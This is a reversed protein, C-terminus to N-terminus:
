MIHEVEERISHVLSNVPRPTRSYTDREHKIWELDSVFVWLLLFKVVSRKHMLHTSKQFESHLKQKKQSFLSNKLPNRKSQSDILEKFIQYNTSESIWTILRQQEEQTLIENQVSLLNNKRGNIALYYQKLAKRLTHLEFTRWFFNKLFSLLFEEIGISEDIYLHEENSKLSMNFHFHHKNERNFDIEFGSNDVKRYWFVIYNIERTDLDNVFQDLDSYSQLTGQAWEEFGKKNKSIEIELNLNGDSDSVINKIRWLVDQGVFISSWVKIEFLYDNWRRLIPDFIYYSNWLEVLTFSHNSFPRCFIVSSKIALEDFYEKFIISWNHCSGGHSMRNSGIDEDRRLSLQLIQTHDENKYFDTFDQRPITNYIKKIKLLKLFFNVMYIFKKTLEHSEKDQIWHFKELSYSVFVNFIADVESVLETESNKNYLLTNFRQSWRALLLEDPEEGSESAEELIDTIIADIQENSLIPPATIDWPSALSTWM